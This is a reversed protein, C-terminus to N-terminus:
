SEAKGARVVIFSTAALLLIQSVLRAVAAGAIGLYTAGVWVMPLYTVTSFIMVIMRAKQMGLARLVDGGMASVGLTFPYLCLIQIIPVAERYQEGILLPVFPAGVLLGLGVALSVGGMVPLVKRAFAFAESTGKRSHHFYRTYTASLLARIPVCATDVIRFAATYHGGATADLTQVVLPKDLDRLGAISAFELAYIFGDGLDCPKLVLVPRGLQTLVMGLALCVAVVAGALYWASWIQLTLPDFFQWAMFAAILRIILVSVNIVFQQRAKEHAQFCANCLSVLRYLVLEAVAVMLIADLPLGEFHLMLTAVVVLPLLVPLSILVSTLANGFAQGFPIGDRAVHRILVQDCGIGVFTSVFATIATFGAFTGYGAPGLSRSIILFYGLQVVIRLGYDTAYVFFNGGLNSRKLRALAARNLM